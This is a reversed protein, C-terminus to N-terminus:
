GHDVARHELTRRILGFPNSRQRRPLYEPQPCAESHPLPSCLAAKRHLGCDMDCVANRTSKAITRGPYRGAGSQAFPAPMKGQM